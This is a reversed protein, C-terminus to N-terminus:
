HNFCVLSFLHCLVVKFLFSKPAYTRSVCGNKAKQAKEPEPHILEFSKSKWAGWGLFIHMGIVGGGKISRPTLYINVWSRLGFLAVQMVPANDDDPLVKLFRKLFRINSPHSDEGPDYIGVDPRYYYPSWFYRREFKQTMTRMFHQMSLESYFLKTQPQTQQKRNWADTFTIESDTKWSHINRTGGFIVSQVLKTENGVGFRSFLSLFGEVSIDYLQSREVEKVVTLFLLCEPNKPLMDYAPQNSLQISSCQTNKGVYLEIERSYKYFGELCVKTNLSEPFRPWCWHLQCVNIWVAECQTTSVNVQAVLSSYNPYAYGVVMLPSGSIYFSPLNVQHSLMCINARTEFLGEVLALGGYLCDTGNNGEYRYHTVTVNFTKEKQPKTIWFMKWCPESGMPSCNLHLLSPHLTDILIQDDSFKINMHFSYLMNVNQFKSLQLLVFVQFTQTVYRRTKHKFCASRFGPGECVTIIRTSTLHIHISFQKQVVIWHSVNTSEMLLLSVFHKKIQVSISVGFIKSVKFESSLNSTKLVATMTSFRILFAFSFMPFHFLKMEVISGPPYVVVDAYIGCLSINQWCSDPKQCILTLNYRCRTQQLSFLQLHKVFFETSLHTHAQKIIWSAWHLHKDSFCSFRKEDQEISLWIVPTLIMYHSPKDCKTFKPKVSHERQSASHAFQAVNERLAKLADWLSFSNNLMPFFVKRCLVAKTYRFLTLRTTGPSKTTTREQHAVGTRLMLCCFVFEKMMQFLIHRSSRNM